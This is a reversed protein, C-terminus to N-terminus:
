RLVDGRRGEGLRQGGPQQRRVAVARVLGDGLIMAAQHAYIDVVRRVQPPWGPLALRAHDRM